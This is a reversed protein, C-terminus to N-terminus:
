AGPSCDRMAGGRPKRSSPRSVTGLLMVGVWPLLPYVMLFTFSGSAIAMQAHLAVWLPHSTDLVGSTAPWIPDLLNHGAVIAGGIILCVRQGVFQAGALVVMSAGIVWIVQMPVGVRGDLQEIGWPAFSWATAVVVCEIFILWVGRQLLFAGLASQTKRSTMLGASVGALLVFM